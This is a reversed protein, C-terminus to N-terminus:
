LGNSMWHCAMCATQGAPRSHSGIGSRCPVGLRRTRTGRDVHRGQGSCSQHLLRWQEGLLMCVGPFTQQHSAKQGVLLFRLSPQRWAHEIPRVFSRCCAKDVAVAVGTKLVYMQSAWVKGGTERKARIIAEGGHVAIAESAPWEGVSDSHPQVMALISNPTKLFTHYLKSALFNGNYPIRPLPPHM